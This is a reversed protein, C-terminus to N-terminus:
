GIVVIVIVLKACSNYQSHIDFQTSYGFMVKQYSPGISLFSFSLVNQSM